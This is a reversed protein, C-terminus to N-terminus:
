SALRPYLITAIIIAVLIMVILLGLHLLMNEYVGTILISRLIEVVYSLPNIVAVVQLWKPMISIPYIASSAFFLPMTLVQGIGMFRERTRMLSALIMSFCSFFASELVVVFITGLVSFISWRIDVKIILALLLIIVAQSLGRVAAGMTRGVVFASRPVPLALFKQIIGQDRDWILALGYFISIFLVSQSLIGPTMFAIYPVGGTPIAKIRTFTEGFVLLWLVPQVARTFLETPDHRLRRAEMEGLTLSDNIWKKIKSSLSKNYGEQRKESEELSMFIGERM